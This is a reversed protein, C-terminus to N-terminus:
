RKYAQLYVYTFIIFILPVGIILLVAGTSDFNGLIADQPANANGTKDDKRLNYGCLIFFLILFSILSFVSLSYLIRFGTEYGHSLQTM